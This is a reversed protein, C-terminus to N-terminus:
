GNALEKLVRRLASTDPVHNFDPQISMQALEAHREANFPVHPLLFEWIEGARDDFLAQYPYRVGRVWGFTDLMAETLEPLGLERLSQNVEAPDRELVLTREPPTWNFMWSGTCSIGRYKASSQKKEIEFPTAYAIPDHWCISTDTTLWAASWTTGSRPLGLVAFDLM